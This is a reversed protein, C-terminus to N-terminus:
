SEPNLRLAFQQGSGFYRNRDANMVQDRCVLRDSTVLNDGDDVSLAHLANRSTNFPAGHSFLVKM